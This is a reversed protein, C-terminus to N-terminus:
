PLADHGFGSLQPGLYESKFGDNAQMMIIRTQLKSPMEVLHHKMTDSGYHLCPPLSCVLNSLRM